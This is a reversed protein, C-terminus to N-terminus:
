QTLFLFKPSSSGARSQWSEARRSSSRGAKAFGHTCGSGGRRTQGRCGRLEKLQVFERSYIHGHQSLFAGSCFHFSPLQLAQMQLEDKPAKLPKLHTQLRSGAGDLPQATVTVGPLQEQLGTNM